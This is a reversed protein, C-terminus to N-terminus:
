ARRHELIHPRVLHATKHVLMGLHFPLSDYIAPPMSLSPSHSSPPPPLPHFTV